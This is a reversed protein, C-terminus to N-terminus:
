IINNRAAVESAPVCLSSSLTGAILRVGEQSILRTAENAAATADPADGVVWTLQKGAIGGRENILDRVIELGEMHRKGEFALPGTIPELVGIRYEGSTAQGRVTALEGGLMVALVTVVLTFVFRPM